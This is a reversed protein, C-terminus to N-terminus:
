MGWGAFLANAIWVYLGVFGALSGFLVVIFILNDTKTRMTNLTLAWRLMTLPRAGDFQM